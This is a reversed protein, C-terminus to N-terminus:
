ETRQKKQTMMVPAKTKRKPYKKDRKDDTKRTKGAVKRRIRDEDDEETEETNDDSDEISTDKLDSKPYKKDGKYNRMRTKSVCRKKSRHM